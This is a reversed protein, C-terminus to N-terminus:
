VLVIRAVEELRLLELQAAVHSVPLLSRHVVYDAHLCAYHAVLPVDVVVSRRADVLPQTRQGVIHRLCLEVGSNGFM